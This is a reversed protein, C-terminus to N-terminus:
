WTYITTLSPLSLAQPIRTFYSLLVYHTKRQPFVELPTGLPVLAEGNVRSCVKGQACIPIM